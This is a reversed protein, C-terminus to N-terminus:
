LDCVVKSNPDSLWVLPPWLSNGPFFEVNWFTECFWSCGKWKEKKLNTHQDSQNMRGGMVWHEGWKGPFNVAPGGGFFFISTQKLQHESNWVPSSRLNWLVNTSRKPGCFFLFCRTQVYEDLVAMTAIPAKLNTPDGGGHTKKTTRLVWILFTTRIHCIFLNFYTVWFDNWQKKQPM